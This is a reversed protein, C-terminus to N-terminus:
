EEEGDRTEVKVMGRVRVWSKRESNRRRASSGGGWCFCLTWICTLLLTVSSGVEEEGDNGKGAEVLVAAGVGAGM